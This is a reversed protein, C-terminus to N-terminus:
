VIKAALKGVGAAPASAVASGAGGSAGNPGQLGALRGAVGAAIMKDSTHEDAGGIAGMVSDPLTHILNMCLSILQQLSYCFIVFYLAISLLGTTSNGQSDAMAGSFLPVLVSGGWIVCAMGAFFGLCMLMPRFLMNTLYIYFKIAAGPAFGEGTRNLHSFAGLEAVVLGKVVGLMWTIVAAFWILFISMSIWVGLYLGAAIFVYCITKYLEGLSPAVKNIAATVVRVGPIFPAATDVAIGALGIWTLYDGLNKAAIVPNVFGSGGSDKAVASMLGNVISQGLSCEGIANGDNTLCTDNTFDTPGKAQTLEITRLFDKLSKGTSGIERGELAVIQAGPIYTVEYAHQADAAAANVESFVSFWQGLGIWGMAHMNAILQSQLGSNKGAGAQAIQGALQTRADATAKQLQTYTQQAQAILDTGTAAGTSADTWYASGWADGLPVVQNEISDLQQIAAAQTQDSIAKYNIGAIRFGTAGQWGENVRTDVGPRRKITVRGCTGFDYGSEGNEDFKQPTIKTTALPAANNMSACASSLFVGRVATQMDGALTAQVGDNMSFSPMISQMQSTLDIATNTIKNAGGIGLAVAMMIIAQALSFGGLAPLAAFIGLATRIPYWVTSVHKGLVEGSDASDAVTAVVGWTVWAFGMICVSCNFVFFASGILTTAVGASQFPHDVFNEGLVGRLFKISVDAPPGYAANRLDDITLMTQAHALSPLLAAVLLFAALAILPLIFAPSQGSNFKFRYTSM